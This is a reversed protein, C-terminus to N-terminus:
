IIILAIINNIRAREIAIESPLSNDASARTATETALATKDAKTLELSNDTSARTQAEATILSRVETDDYSGDGKDGKEGKLMLVKIDEIKETNRVRHEDFSITVNM